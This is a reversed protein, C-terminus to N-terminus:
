EGEGNRYRRGHSKIIGVVLTNIWLGIIMTKAVENPAHFTFQLSTNCRLSLSEYIEVAGRVDSILLVQRSRGSTGSLISVCPSSCGLYCAGHLTFCLGWRCLKSHPSLWEDTLSVLHQLLTTTAVILMCYITCILNYPWTQGDQSFNDM